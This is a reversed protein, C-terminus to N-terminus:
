HMNSSSVREKEGYRLSIRVEIPQRFDDKNHLGKAIRIANNRVSVSEDHTFDLLIGLFQERMNVRRFILDRLTNM